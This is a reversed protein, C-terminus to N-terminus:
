MLMIRLFMYEGIKKTHELVSRIQGMIRLQLEFVISDM